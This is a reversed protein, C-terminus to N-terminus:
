LGMNVFCKSHHFVCEARGLADQIRTGNVVFAVLCDPSMHKARKQSQTQFSFQFQPQLGLAQLRLPRFDDPTQVMGLLHFKQELAAAEQQSPLHDPMGRLCQSRCLHSDRGQQLFDASRAFQLFNAWTTGVIKERQLGNIIVV